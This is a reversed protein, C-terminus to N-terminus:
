KRNFKLLYTLFPMELNAWKILGTKMKSEIRELMEPAYDTLLMAIFNKKWKAYLNDVGVQELEPQHYSKYKEWIQQANELFEKNRPFEGQSLADYIDKMTMKETELQETSTQVGPESLGPVMDEAVRPGEDPDGATELESFTHHREALPDQNADYSKLLWAM